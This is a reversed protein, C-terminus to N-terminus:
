AHFGAGLLLQARQGAGATASTSGAIEEQMASAHEFGYRLIGSTRTEQELLSRGVTAQHLVELIGLAVIANLADIVEADRESALAPRKYYAARSLGPL